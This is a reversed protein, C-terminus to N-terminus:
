LATAVDLSVDSIAVVSYNRKRAKGIWPRNIKIVGIYM